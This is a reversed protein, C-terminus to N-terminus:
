SYVNGLGPGTYIPALRGDNFPLGGQSTEPPLFLGSLAMDEFLKIGTYSIRVDRILTKEWKRIEPQCGSTCNTTRTLITIPSASGSANGNGLRLATTSDKFHTFLAAGDDQIATPTVLSAM